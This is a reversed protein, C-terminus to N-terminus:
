GKRVGVVNVDGRQHRKWLVWLGSGVVLLTQITTTLAESGVDVGFKPLFSALLNVVVAVYTTSVM